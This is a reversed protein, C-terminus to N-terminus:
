GESNEVEVLKDIIDQHEETNDSQRITKILAKVKIYLQKLRIVHLILIWFENKHISRDFGFFMYFVVYLNFFTILLSMFSHIYWYLAIWIVYDDVAKAGIYLLNSLVANLVFGIFAYRALMANDLKGSEQVKWHYLFSYRVWMVDVLAFVIYVLIIIAALYMTDIIHM